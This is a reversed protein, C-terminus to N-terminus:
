CREKSWCLRTVNMFCFAEATFQFTGAPPDCKRSIKLGSEQADRLLRARPCGQGTDSSALEFNSMRPVATKMMHTTTITWGSWLLDLVPEARSISLGAVAQRDALM